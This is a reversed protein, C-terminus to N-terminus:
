ASSAGLPAQRVYARKDLCDVVAVAVDHMAMVAAHEFRQLQALDAMELKEGHAIENRRGVLQRLEADHAEFVPCQIGISVNIRKAVAPWLNSETDIEDAFAAREKLLGSFTTTAFNWLNSDSTDGRVERFVAAMSRRALPDVLDQRSLVQGQISDLMLTWCFKCFGEYHAYLMTCCARMLARHRDSGAPASALLLKLAGMEAERWALDKEIQDAWSTM